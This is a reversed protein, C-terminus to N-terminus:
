VRVLYVTGTYVRTVPDLVHDLGHVAMDTYVIATAMDYQDQNPNLPMGHGDLPIEVTVPADLTGPGLVPAQSKYKLEIRLEGSLYEVTNLGYTYVPEPISSVTYGSVLLRYLKGSQERINVQIM